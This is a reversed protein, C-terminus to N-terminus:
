GGFGDAVHADILSPGGSAMAERVAQGIEGPDTIRRAPMGMANALGVFDLPPDRFDM